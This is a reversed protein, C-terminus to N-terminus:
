LLRAAPEAKTSSKRTRHPRPGAVAASTPTSDAESRLSSRMLSKITEPVSVEESIILPQGIAGIPRGDLLFDLIPLPEVYRLEESGPENLRDRLQRLLRGLVNLSVLTGDPAPQAGWFPDRRSIEVIPGDRTSRLLDGFRDWHEALKARLCWRMVNVRVEDWDPRTNPRHRKSKMKATMPSRQSIIERQIEPLTPFRCAQYLAESTLIHLGNVSLPFGAAMNSLGGFAERTKCFSVCASPDYVRYSVSASM